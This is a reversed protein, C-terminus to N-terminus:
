YFYRYIIEFGSLFLLALLHAMDLRLVRLRLHKHMTMQVRQAETVTKMGGFQRSMGIDHKWLPVRDDKHVAAEPMAVFSALRRRRWLRVHLEPLCLELPVYRPVLLLVGRQRRRSPMDDDEPLALHLLPQCGDCVFDLLGALSRCVPFM